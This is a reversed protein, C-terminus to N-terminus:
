KNKTTRTITRQNQGGGQAQQAPQAQQQTPARMICKGNLAAGEEMALNRARVDGDVRCTSALKLAGPTAVNGYV